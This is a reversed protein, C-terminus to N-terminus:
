YCADWCGSHGPCFVRGSAGCEEEATLARCHNGGQSDCTQGSACSGCSLTGGCGDSATGCTAGVDACTKAQCSAASFDGLMVLESELTYGNGQADKTAESASAALRVCTPTVTGHVSLPKGAWSTSATGPVNENGECHGNPCGLSPMWTYAVIPSADVAKTPDFSTSIAQSVYDPTYPGGWSSQFRDGDLRLQVANSEYSAVVDGVTDLRFRQESASTTFTENLTSFPATVDRSGTRWDSCAFGPYCSRERRVIQFRGVKKELVGRPPDLMALIQASTATPGSCSGPDFPDNSPTPNCVRGQSIQSVTAVEHSGDKCTVAFSGTPCSADSGDSPCAKMSVANATDAHESTGVADAPAASCGAAALLALLSGSAFISFSLSRNM